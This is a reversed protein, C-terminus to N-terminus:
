KNLSPATRRMQASHFYSIDYRNYLTKTLHLMKILDHKLIMCLSETHPNYTSQDHLFSQHM